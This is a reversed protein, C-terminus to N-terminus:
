SGGGNKREALMADAVRYAGVALGKDVNERHLRSVERMYSENATMGSLAQGALWDRLTMGPHEGLSGPLYAPFAPPNLHESM